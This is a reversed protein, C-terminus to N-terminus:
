RKFVHALVSSMSGGYNVSLGVDANPVQRKGAQGTLQLYIEYVQALGTAGIPHGRANLGGSPNISVKGGIETEGDRILHYGTGRKAFGAAETLIIEIMTFADHVEALSIQSPEVRSMKYAERCSLTVAEPSIPDEREYLGLPGTANGSGEVRIPTDTFRRAIEPKTLIAVAAGDSIPSCDFLKFPWAIIRSSLIQDVNVENQFHAKPNKSGNRHNKVGVMAMDDETAGYRNMYSVATMAYIAPFTFGNWQEIAYDGAGMLADTVEQTTRNSMKEVGCVLVIDHLGAMIDMLGARLAMSGAAACGEVRMAGIPLLGGWDALATGYMIQHEYTESQTGVYIAGIKKRDLNPVRELAESFADLFLERTNLRKHVGIKTMGASIISALPAM